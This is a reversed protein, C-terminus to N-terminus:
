LNQYINILKDTDVTNSEITQLQSIVIQEVSEFHIEGAEYEEEVEKVPVLQIERCKYKDMFNEKIFSAEEYSIDVDLKIRAYTTPGLFKGPNDIVFLLPVLFM